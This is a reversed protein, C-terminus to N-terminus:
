KAQATTVPEADLGDFRARVVEGARLLVRKTQAISKGDRAVEARLEYYYVQGPELMPTNFTRVAAMTKMARDDVYLKADAPLEVVLKARTPVMTMPKSGEKPKPLAEGQPVTGEPTAPVVTGPAWM